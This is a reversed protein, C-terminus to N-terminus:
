TITLKLAFYLFSIVNEVTLIVLWKTKNQAFFFWNGTVFYGNEKRQNYPMYVHPFIFSYKSVLRYDEDFVSLQRMVFHGKRGAFFWILRPMPGTQDSDESDAHLFM